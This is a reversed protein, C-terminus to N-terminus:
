VPDGKKTYWTLCMLIYDKMVECFNVPPIEKGILEMAQRILPNKTCSCQMGIAYHYIALSLHDAQETTIHLNDALRSNLKEARIYYSQKFAALREVSVNTEIITSLIDSYRLYDCHSNLLNAWVESLVELSYTAGLPYTLMFADMYADRKCGILELFIEEKTTVYQYLKTRSWGLAEAITTLTIEHYDKTSFLQDVAHKIEEMREEKQQDSRARIFDSM